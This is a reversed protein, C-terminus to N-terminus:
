KYELATLKDQYKTFKDLSYVPNVYEVKVGKINKELHDRFEDINYRPLGTVM